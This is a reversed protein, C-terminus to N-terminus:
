ATTHHAPAIYLLRLYVPIIQFVKFVLRFFRSFAEGEPHATDREGSPMVPVSGAFM